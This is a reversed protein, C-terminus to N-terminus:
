GRKVLASLLGNQPVLMNMFQMPTSALAVASYFLGVFSQWKLQPSHFVEHIEM